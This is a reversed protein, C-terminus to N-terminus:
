KNMIQERAMGTKTSITVMKTVVMSMNRKVLQLQKPDPCNDQVKVSSASGTKGTLVNLCMKVATNGKLNQEGNTMKSVRSQCIGVCIPLQTM